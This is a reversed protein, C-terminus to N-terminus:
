ASSTTNGFKNWYQRCVVDLEDLTMEKGAQDYIEVDSCKLFLVGGCYNFSMDHQNCYVKVINGDIETSLLELEAQFIQSNIKYYEQPLEKPNMWPELMLQEVDLLNIHFYEYSPDILEALYLCEIKLRLLNKDGGWAVISGDHFISFVDSIKEINNQTTM